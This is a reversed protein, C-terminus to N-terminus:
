STGGSSPNKIAALIVPHNFTSRNLVLKVQKTGYTTITSGNVAELPNTIDPQAGPDNCPFVSRAAGTDILVWQASIKDFVMPRIDKKDLKGAFEALAHKAGKIEGNRVSPHFLGSFQNNEFDSQIELMNIDIKSM